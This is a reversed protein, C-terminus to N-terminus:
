SGAASGFHGRRSSDRSGRAFIAWSADSINAMSLKRQLDPVAVDFQFMEYVRYDSSSSYGTKTILNWIEKPRRHDHNIYLSPLPGNSGVIM